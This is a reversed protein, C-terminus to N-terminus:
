RQGQQSPLPLSAFGMHRNSQNQQAKRSVLGDPFCSPKAVQLTSERRLLRAEECIAPPASKSATERLNKTSSSYMGVGDKRGTLRRVSGTGLCWASETHVPGDVEDTPSRFALVIPIHKQRSIETTRGVCTIRLEQYVRHM